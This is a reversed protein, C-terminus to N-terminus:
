FRATLVVGYTRPPSLRLEGGMQGILSRKLAYNELNRVYVNVTWNGGPPTYLISFDGIRHSEQVRVDDRDIKAYYYNGDQDQELSIMHAQWTMFYSSQFRYELRPALTGGNPLDFNHSYNANITWHPANTMPYGNYSMDELGINNTIQEYDFIISTFEKNIYSVSLDLRDKETIITSTQLDGGWVEADGSTLQGLDHQQETEGPDVIGNDNYDVITNVPDGVTFFNEYDYYYASINVQLRNDFFRNKAGITYAELQEPPIIKDPGKGNVRYSTSWDAFIMSFDSVDYEIGIKYDPDDYEMVSTEMQTLDSPDGEGLWRKESNTLTDWTMRTGATVRFRDTLPYTINGYVAKTEQKGISIRNSDMVDPDDDNQEYYFSHQDEVSEYYNAGLIWKFPFDESSALRLEASKETTDGDLTTLAQVITFMGTETIGKRFNSAKTYSPVMSLTGVAGLNWELRASIRREERVTSLPPLDSASTWPDDLPTGDTFYDDNQNEFQKAGTFGLTDSKSIEGTVVLSIRDNPEFLYKVRAAKSDEDDGGNSLYGDHASTSFAARLAMRDALPLNIVGETKIQSYNGYELMGSGEYADIKPDSTIVNVIGGPSASAYLTSQPGFLVEVRQIDFLDTNGTNRNTYVGDKNVAVTPKSTQMDNFIANDNSMGRISVRLGDEATNIMVSSVNNLIEDIDNYGFQKLEEGALVEMAIPVKQLNEARKQATVTIEELTFADSEEQALGISIFCFLALIGASVGALFRYRKLNFMYAEKKDEIAM